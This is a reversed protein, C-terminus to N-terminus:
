ELVNQVMIIEESKTLSNDTTSFCPHSHTSITGTSSMGPTSVIDFHNRNKVFNTSITGHKQCNKSDFEHRTSSMRGGRLKLDPQEICFGNLQM